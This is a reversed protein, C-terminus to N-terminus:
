FFMHIQITSMIYNKKINKLLLFIIYLFFASLADGIQKEKIM